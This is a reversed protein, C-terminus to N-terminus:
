SLNKRFLKNYSDEIDKSKMLQTGVLLGDVVGQLSIWDERSQIGSEGIKIRDKPIFKALDQIINPYIKFSDLDRTNIGIAQAGIKVALDVEERNHTEVLVGMGLNHSYELLNQLRDPTLIRVILLIASAGYHRAEDIQIENIIFDKRIVPIKVSSAVNQLDM